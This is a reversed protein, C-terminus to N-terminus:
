MTADFLGFDWAKDWLVGFFGDQALVKNWTNLPDLQWQKASNVSEQKSVTNNQSDQSMANANSSTDQGAQEQAQINGAFDVAKPNLSLRNQPTNSGAGVGGGQNAGNGDGLGVTNSTSDNNTRSNSSGGGQQWQSTAFDDSKALNEAAKYLMPLQNGFFDNVLLCWLEPNTQGLNYAWFHKLFQTYVAKMFADTLGLKDTPLNGYKNALEDEKEQLEEEKSQIDNTIGDIVSQQSDVKSQIKDKQGSLAALTAFYGGDNKFQDEQPGSRINDPHTDETTLTRTQTEQLATIISQKEVLSANLNAMTQQEKSLLANDADIEEQLKAIEQELATKADYLGPTFSWGFGQLPGIYQAFDKWNIEIIEWLRLPMTRNEDFDPIAGKIKYMPRDFNGNVFNGLTQSGSFLGDSMGNNSGGFYRQAFSM